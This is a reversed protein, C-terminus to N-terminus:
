YDKWHESKTTKKLEEMRGKGKVIRTVIPAVIFWLGFMIIFGVLLSYIETLAGILVAAFGLIFLIAGIAKGKSKKPM